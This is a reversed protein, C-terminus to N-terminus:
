VLVIDVTLGPQNIVSFRDYVLGYNFDLLARDVMISYTDEDVYNLLMELPEPDCFNVSIGLNLESM